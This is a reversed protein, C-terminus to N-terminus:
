CGREIARGISCGDEMIRESEAKLKVTHGCRECEFQIDGYMGYLTPKWNVRMNDYLELEVERGCEECKLRQGLWWPRWDRRGENIIKM